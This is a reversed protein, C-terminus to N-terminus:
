TQMNEPLQSKLSSNSVGSLHDCDLAKGGKGKSRSLVQKRITMIEKNNVIWVMYNMKPNKVLM